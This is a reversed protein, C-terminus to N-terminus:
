INASYSMMTLTSYPYDFKDYTQNHRPTPVKRYLSSRNRHLIIQMLQLSLLKPCCYTRQTYACGVCMCVIDELIYSTCFRGKEIRADVAPYGVCWGGLVGGGCCREEAFAWWVCRRLPRGWRWRWRWRREVAAARRGWVRARGLM